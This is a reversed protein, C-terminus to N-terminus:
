EFIDYRMEDKEDFLENHFALSLPANRLEIFVILSSVSIVM